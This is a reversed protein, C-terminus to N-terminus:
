ESSIHWTSRLLVTLPLTEAYVSCSSATLLAIFYNTSRYKGLIWSRRPKKRECLLKMTNADLSQGVGSVFMWPLLYYHFCIVIPARKMIPRCAWELPGTLSGTAGAMQLRTLYIVKSRIAGCSVEVWLCFAVAWSTDNKHFWIRFYSIWLLIGSYFTACEPIEFFGQCLRDQVLCLRRRLWEERM